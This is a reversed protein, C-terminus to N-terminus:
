FIEFHIQKTSVQATALFARVDKVMPLSGCLYWDGTIDFERIHDTVRGRLGSWATGPQSLTISFSFKSSRSALDELQERWFIDQEYRLGFLLRIRENSEKYIEDRIMSMIPAVGAGTAVFTKVAHHEPSVVFRGEPGRFIVPVGPTLGSAFTSGKGGPIIKICLAIEQDTPHSALSYSRLVVQGPLEPIELQIFQGPKFMFGEPKALRLEMMDATLM